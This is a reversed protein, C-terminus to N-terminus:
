NKTEKVRQLLYIKRTKDDDLAAKMQKEICENIDMDPPCPADANGTIEIYHSDRINKVEFYAPIESKEGAKLDIKGESMDFNGMEDSDLTTRKSNGVGSYTRKKQKDYYFARLATIEVDKKAELVVTFDVRGDSMKDIRISSKVLALDSVPVSPVDGGSFLKDKFFYGTIGLVAAALWPLIQKMQM